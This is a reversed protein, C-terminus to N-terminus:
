DVARGGVADLGTGYERFARAYSGPGSRRLRVETLAVDGAAYPNAGAPRHVRPGEAACRSQATAADAEGGAVAASPGGPRRWPRPWKQESWGTWRPSSRSSKGRRRRRGDARRAGGSRSGAPARRCRGPPRRQRPRVVLFFLMALRGGRRRPRRTGGPSSASATRLRRRAPRCRSTTWIASSTAGCPRQGDRLPPQPGEGAGEDRDLGARRARRQELPGTRHAPQRRDVAAHREFQAQTSPKPPEEERIIRLM